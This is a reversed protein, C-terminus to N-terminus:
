EINIRSLINRASNSETRIMVTGNKLRVLTVMLESLGKTIKDITMGLGKEFLISLMLSLVVVFVHAKIRESKRHYEPRVVVFSRMTRFSREIM